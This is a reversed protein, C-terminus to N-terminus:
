PRKGKGGSQSGGSGRPGDGDGRQQAEAAADQPTRLAMGAIAAPLDSVIVQEGPQLGATVLLTDPNRFAVTVPRIELQRQPNMVWVQDGDRFVRREVAAAKPLGLGEIEARVYDGLILPPEGANEPRLALPDPVSVLVRALRGSPELDPLRRLVEGRRAGSEAGASVSWIRVASGREDGGGPVRLWRLLNVPVTLEVWYEDSGTLTALATNPTVQLGVNVNRARLTANFPARVTTRELNVRALDLTAETAAVVARAQALQPQRLVLERSEGTITEGLLEFEREAVAQQGMELALSAQARALDTERQRLTLQFDVPDLRVLLDGEDLHGGPILAPSMEIVEGAVRPFLTVERAPQVVGHARILTPQPGFEVPRVEVLRATRPPPQRGTKPATKVMVWTLLMGVAVVLVPLVLTFLKGPRNPKPPPPDIVNPTMM